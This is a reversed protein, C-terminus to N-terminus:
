RALVDALHSQQGHGLRLALFREPLLLNIDGSEVIGVALAREFSAADAL